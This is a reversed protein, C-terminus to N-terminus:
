IYDTRGEFSIAAAQSFNLQILLQKKKPDFKKVEWTFSKDSIIEYDIPDSEEKSNKAM